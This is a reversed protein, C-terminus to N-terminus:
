READGVFVSAVLLNKQPKGFAFVFTNFCRFVPTFGCRRFSTDNTETINRPFRCFIRADNPMKRLVSSRCLGVTAQGSELRFLARVLSAPRGAKRLHIDLLAFSTNAVGRPYNPGLWTNGLISDSIACDVCWALRLLHAEAQHLRYRRSASLPTKPWKNPGNWRDCRVNAGFKVHYDM